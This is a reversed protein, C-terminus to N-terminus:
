GLINNQEKKELNDLVSANKGEGKSIKEEKNEHDGLSNKSDGLMRYVLQVDFQVIHLMLHDITEEM